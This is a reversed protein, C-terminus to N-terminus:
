KFHVTYSGDVNRVLYVVSPNFYLFSNNWIVMSHKGRHKLNGHLPSLVARGLVGLHEDIPLRTDIDCVEGYPCWKYKPSKWIVGACPSNEPGENCPDNGGQTVFGHKQLPGALLMMAFLLNM